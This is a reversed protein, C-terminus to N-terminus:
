RQTKKIYKYKYIKKSLKNIIIIIIIFNTWGMPEVQDLGVIHTSNSNHSPNSQTPNFKKKDVM